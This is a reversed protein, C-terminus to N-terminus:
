GARDPLPPVDRRKSYIRWGNEDSGVVLYNKWSSINSPELNFLIQFFEKNSLGLHKQFQKITLVQM